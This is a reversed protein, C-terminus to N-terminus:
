MRELRNVRRAIVVPSPAFCKPCTGGAKPQTWEHRCRSCLLDAMARMDRGCFLVETDTSVPEFAVIKATRKFPIVQAPM